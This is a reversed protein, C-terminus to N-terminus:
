QIQNSWSIVKGTVPSVTVSSKRNDSMTVELRYDKSLAEQTLSIDQVEGDVYKNKTMFEVVLKEAEEPINM